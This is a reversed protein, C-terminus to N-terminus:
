VERGKDGPGWCCLKVSGTHLEGAILDFAEAAGGRGSEPGGGWVQTHGM